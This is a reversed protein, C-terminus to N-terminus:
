LSAELAQLMPRFKLATEEWEAQPDSQPLIGAGAFLQVENGRVLGCRLAVYFDGNGAADVWGFPAGYWGREFPELREIWELAAQRPEGGLAATPHLADVADLVDYGNVMQGQIHVQLHQVNPLFLPRVESLEINQVLPALHRSIYEVVIQHERRLRPDALLTQTLAADDQANAGRPLSGALAMTELRGGEVRVLREPTAGLFTADDDFRFFFLHSQPYLRLLAQFISEPKWPHEQRLHLTRALVVKEVEGRRMAEQVRLIQAKWENFAPLFSVRLEGIRYREWLRPFQKEWTPPIGDKRGTKEHKGAHSGKSNHNGGEDNNEKDNFKAVRFIMLRPGWGATLDVRVVRGQLGVHASAANVKEPEHADGCFGERKEEAGPEADWEENGNSRSVDGARPGHARKLMAQEAYGAGVERESAPLNRNGNGYGGNGSHQHEPDNQGDDQWSRNPSRDHSYFNLSGDYQCNNAIRFVANNAQEVLELLRARLADVELVDQETQAWHHLTLWRGGREESWLWVPLGFRPPMQPDSISASFAFNGFLRLPLDPARGEGADHLRKNLQELWFRLEQSNRPSFQACWGLALFREQRAPMVLYAGRHEALWEISPFDREWPLTYRQLLYPLPMEADLSGSVRRTQTLCLM